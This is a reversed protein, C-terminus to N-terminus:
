PEGDGVAAHGDEVAWPEAVHLRQRALLRQARAHERHLADGDGPDGEVTEALADGVLRLRGGIGHEVQAAGAAACPVHPPAELRLALRDVEHALRVARLRFLTTYPFLTSRPPRRIM